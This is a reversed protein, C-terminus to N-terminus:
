VYVSCGSPAQEKIRWKLDGLFNGSVNLERLNPTHQMGAVIAAGAAEGMAGGLTLLNDAEQTWAATDKAAGALGALLLYDDPNPFLHPLLDHRDITSEPLDTM